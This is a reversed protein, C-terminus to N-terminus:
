GAVLSADSQLWPSLHDSSTASKADPSGSLPTASTALSQGTAPAGGGTQASEAHHGHHRHGHHAATAQGSGASEQLSLLQALSQSQSLAQSPDTSSGSLSNTAQNVLDMFSGSASTAGGSPLSQETADSASTASTASTSPQRLSQLFQAINTGNLSSISTMHQEEDSFAPVRGLGAGSSSCLSPWTSKGVLGPQAPGNEPSVAALGVNM